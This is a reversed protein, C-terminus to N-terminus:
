FIRVSKFLTNIENKLEESVQSKVYRVRDVDGRGFEIMGTKEDDLLFGKSIVIGNDDLETMTIFPINRISVFFKCIAEDPNVIERIFYEWTDEVDDEYHCKIYFTNRPISQYENFQIRKATKLTRCIVDNVSKYNILENENERMYIDKSVVKSERKRTMSLNINVPEIFYFAPDMLYVKTKDVPVVIAVHSIHLYGKMKYKNPITVPVLYSKIGKLKLREKIFMALGICCGSNYKKLAVKSSTVGDQIFPFTSFAIETYCQNLVDHLTKKNFKKNLFQVPRTKMKEFM